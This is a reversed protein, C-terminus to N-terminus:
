EDGKDNRQYSDFFEKGMHKIEYGLQEMLFLFEEYTTAKGRCCQMDGSIFKSWSQEKEWQKRNMNVPNQSYEAPVISLGYEECM